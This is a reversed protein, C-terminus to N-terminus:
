QWDSKRWWHDPYNFEIPFNVTVGFTNVSLDAGAVEIELRNYKLGVLFKESVYYSMEVSSFPFGLILYTRLPINWEYGVGIGFNPQFSTESDDSGGNAAQTSSNVLHGELIGTVHIYRRTIGYRIGANFTTQTSEIETGSPFLNSGAVKGKFTGTTLGLSPEFITVALSFSPTWLLLILLHKM